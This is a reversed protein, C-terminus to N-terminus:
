RVAAAPNPESIPRFPQSIFRREVSSWRTLRRAIRYTEPKPAGSKDLLVKQRTEELSYIGNSEPVPLFYHFEEFSPTPWGQVYQHELTEYRKKIKSGFIQFIEFDHTVLGTGHDVCDYHLLLADTNKEFLPAFELSIQDRYHCDGGAGDVVKLGKDSPQLLYIYALSGQCPLFLIVSQTHTGRLNFWGIESAMSANLDSYQSAIDSDVGFDVLVQKRDNETGNYLSTPEQFQQASCRIACLVL